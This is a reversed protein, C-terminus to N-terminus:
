EMLEATIGLNEPHLGPTTRDIECILHSALANFQHILYIAPLPLPCHDQILGGAKKSKIDFYQNKKNHIRIICSSL